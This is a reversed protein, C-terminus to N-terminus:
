IQEMLTLAAQVCLFVAQSLVSEDFDFRPNHHSADLDRDSNASGLFFYCGPIKDLFLAMDESGLVQYQKDISLDPQVVAFRDLVRDTVSPNNILPSTIKNVRFDAQCHFSEAQQSIIRKSETLILERTERSFTRITGHMLVESPIVNFADGAHIQTISLVAAELPDVKRSVISQLAIIIHAAALIPDYALHPVAGHGGKGTLRIELSDAGAMCAGKSAGLWGLPKENWLHIGIAYDASVKELVGEAIMRQAGGEGEEAPQFLLVASGPLEKQIERLVSAVGLGIAMHGDHGCAHMVGENISAYEAGTQEMIPLADMDFRLMVRPSPHRGTIHAILGTEAIGTIPDYQLQQLTHFIRESSRFEQYALEPHQHFDRRWAVLQPELKQIISHLKAADIV